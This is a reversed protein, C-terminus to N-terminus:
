QPDALFAVVKLPHLDTAEEIVEACGAFRFITGSKAKKQIRPLVEKEIRHNLNSSVSNFDQSNPFDKINLLAVGDRVANGFINGTILAITRNGSGVALVISDKGVSVVRGTGTVYYYYTGGLGVTKGYKKRATQPDREIATLVQDANSAQAVSPLLRERWFRDTFTAPDFVGGMSKQTEKLSAVHFLPQFYLLVGGGLLLLIGVVGRPQRSM